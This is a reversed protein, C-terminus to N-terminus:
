EVPLLRVLPFDPASVSPEDSIEPASEWPAIGPQTSPISPTEISQPANIPANDFWPDFVPALDPTM